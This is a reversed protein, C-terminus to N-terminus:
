NESKEASWSDLGLKQRWNIDMGCRNHQVKFACSSLPYRCVELDLLEKAASWTMLSLDKEPLRPM